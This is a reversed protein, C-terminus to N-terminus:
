PLGRDKIFTELKQIRYEVTKRPRRLRKAVASINGEEEFLLQWLKRKDPPLANWVKPLTPMLAPPFYGTRAVAEYLLAAVVITATARWTSRTRASVAIM